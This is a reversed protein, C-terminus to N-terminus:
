GGGGGGLRIGGSLPPRRGGQTRASRRLTARALLTTRRRACARIAWIPNKKKGRRGCFGQKPHQVKRSSSRLRRAMDDMANPEKSSQPKPTDWAGKRGFLSGWTFPFTITEKLLLREPLGEDSRRSPRGEEKKVEAGPRHEDEFLSPRGPWGQDV